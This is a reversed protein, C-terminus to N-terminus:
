QCKAAGLADLMERGVATTEQCLRMADKYMQTTNNTIVTAARITEVIESLLRARQEQQQKEALEM